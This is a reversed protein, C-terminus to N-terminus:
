STRKYCLFRWVPIKRPNEEANLKKIVNFRLMTLASTETPFKLGNMKPVSMNKEGRIILRLGSVHLFHISLILILQNLSLETAFPQPNPLYAATTKYRCRLDMTLAQLFLVPLKSRTNFSRSVKPSGM